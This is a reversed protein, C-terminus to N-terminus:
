ESLLKSTANGDTVEVEFDDDRESKNINTYGSSYFKRGYDVTEDWKRYRREKKRCRTVLVIIVCILIISGTVVGITIQGNVSQFFDKTQQLVHNTEADSQDDNTVHNNITPKKNTDKSSSSEGKVEKVNAETTTPILSEPVKFPGHNHQIVHFTDLIIGDAAM